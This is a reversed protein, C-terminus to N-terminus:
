PERKELLAAIRALLPLGFISLVLLLAGHAVLCPRILPNFRAEIAEDTSCRSM